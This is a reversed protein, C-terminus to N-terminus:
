EEIVANITVPIVKEIYTFYGMIGNSIDVANYDDDEDFEIYETKVWIIDPNDEVARFADGCKLSSFSVERTDVKQQIKM